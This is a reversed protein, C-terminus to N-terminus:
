PNTRLVPETPYFCLQEAELATDLRALDVFTQGDRRILPGRKRRPLSRVTNQNTNLLACALRLSVVARSVYRVNDITAIELRNERLMARRDALKAKEIWKGLASGARPPLMTYSLHWLMDANAVREARREQRIRRAEARDGVMEHLHARVPAVGSRPM